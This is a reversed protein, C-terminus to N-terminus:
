SFDSSLKAITIWIKKHFSHDRTDSMLFSAKSQSNPFVCILQAKWIIKIIYFHFMAICKLGVNFDRSM